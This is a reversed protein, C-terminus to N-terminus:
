TPHGGFGTLSKKFWFIMSLYKVILPVHAQGIVSIFSITSATSSFITSVLGQTDTTLNGTYIPTRIEYYNHYYYYYNRYFGKYIEVTIVKGPSATLNGTLGLNITIPEGPTIVYKDLNLTLVNDNNYYSNAMKPNNELNEESNLPASRNVPFYYPSSHSQKNTYPTEEEFDNLGNDLSNSAGVM